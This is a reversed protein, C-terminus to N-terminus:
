GLGDIAATMGFLEYIDTESFGDLPEALRTYIGVRIGQLAGADLFSTFDTGALEAATSTVPDGPDEGVMATLLIAADTVNRAIPGPTDTQDTVPIVRSRSVLGRSPYMGVVGNVASPAIISGLTETGISAAVFNASTGVASGTSSGLPDWESGYPNVVQGGLATYGSPGTHMWYAWESMNAKGLILAGADRLRAAVTADEDSQSEAMAAAGATNHMSDGTAINGKLSIPIGHLPGRVKGGAREADLDAAIQLADPNLELMSRLGDVDLAQMRTLYYTALEVSSLEGAAMAAQLTPISAELVLADIEVVRGPELAGLAAEFPGFDLPQLPAPAPGSESEAASLVQSSRDAVDDVAANAATATSALMLAAALTSVWTSTTRKLHM